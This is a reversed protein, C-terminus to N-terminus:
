FDIISVISCNTPSILPCVIILHYSFVFSIWIWINTEIQSLLYLFDLEIEHVFWRVLITYVFIQYM